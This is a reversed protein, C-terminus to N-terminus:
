LVVFFLRAYTQLYRPDQIMFDTTALQRPFVGDRADTLKMENEDVQGGTAGYLLYNQKESLSNFPSSLVPYDGNIKM